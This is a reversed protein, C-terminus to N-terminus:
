NIIIINKEKEMKKGKIYEGEYKIKNYYYEKEKGNREGNKCEGEYALKDNYYEKIYGNGDKIEYILNNNVDM